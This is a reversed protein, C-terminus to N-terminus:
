LMSQFVGCNAGKMDTRFYESLYHGKLWARSGTGIAGVIIGYRNWPYCNKRKADSSIKSYSLFFSKLLMELKGKNVHGLPSEM